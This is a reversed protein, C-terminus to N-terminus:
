IFIQHAGPEVGSEKFNLPKELEIIAFDGIGSAGNQDPDYRTDITVKKADYTKEKIKPDNLVHLGARIKLTKLKEETDLNKVCHAATM